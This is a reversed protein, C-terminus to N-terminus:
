SHTYTIIVSFVLLRWPAPLPTGTMAHCGTVKFVMFQSFTMKLFQGCDIQLM